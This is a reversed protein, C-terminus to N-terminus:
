RAGDKIHRSPQKAAAVQEEEEVDNSSGLGGVEVTTWILVFDLLSREKEVPSSIEVQRKAELALGDM